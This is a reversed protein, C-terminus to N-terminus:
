MGLDEDDACAEATEAGCDGDQERAVRHADELRRRFDAFDASSDL